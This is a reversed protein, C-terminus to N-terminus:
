MGWKIDEITKKVYNINLDLLKIKNSFEGYKEVYIKRALYLEDLAESYKEASIYLDAIKTKIFAYDTSSKDKITLIFSETKEAYSFSKNINIYKLKYILNSYTNITREFLNSSKYIELSKNYNKEINSEDNLLSYANGLEFYIDGLFTNNDKSLNNDDLLKDFGNKVYELSNIAAEGNANRVYEKADYFLLRYFEPSHKGYAGFIFTELDVRRREKVRSDNEIEFNYKSFLHRLLYYDSESKFYHLSGRSSYKKLANFLKAKEKDDLFSIINYDYLDFFLFMQDVIDLKNFTILPTSIFFESKRSDGTERLVKSLAIESLAKGLPNKYGLDKSKTYMDDAVEKAKSLDGLLILKNFYKYNSAMDEDVSDLYKIKDKDPDYSLQSSFLQAILVMSILLFRM